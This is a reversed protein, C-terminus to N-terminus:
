GRIVVSSLRAALVPSGAVVESSEVAAIADTIVQEDVGLAKADIVLARDTDFSFPVEQPPIKLTDAIANVVLNKHQNEALVASHHDVPDPHAHDKCRSTRIPDEIPHHVRPEERDDWWFQLKCLCTDPGFNGGHLHKLEDWLLDATPFSGHAKCQQAIGYATTVHDQQSTAEMEAIMQGGIFAGFTARIATQKAPSIAFTVTVTLACGCHTPCIWLRQQIM